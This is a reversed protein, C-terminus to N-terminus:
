RTVYYHRVKYYVIVVIAMWLITVVAEFFWSWEDDRIVILRAKRKNDDWVEKRILRKIIFYGIMVVIIDDLYGIVPIVDPILDIPSLAYGVFIWIFGRLLFPVRKDRACFWLVFVDEKFSHVIKEMDFWKAM